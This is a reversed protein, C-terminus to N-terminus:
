LEKFIRTREIVDKAEFIGSGVVIIDLGYDIIKKANDLKIGGDAEILINLNNNDVIERMRKIKREMSSIFKQGGFGPNVTMILVLDIYELVYELSDISTAPNLAVGAKVGYSKIEEITRHLHTTAEEHITIIDAGAEVFDKIYREPKDIMLHVDFPVKTITRLKNVVPSGFTINPVFQGDMIDLHIYDAGGKELKLVEEKLSGFDASLISPSLKAM